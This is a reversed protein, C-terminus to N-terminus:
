NVVPQTVFCDLNDGGGDLDSAHACSESNDCSFESESHPHARSRPLLPWTKLAVCVQPSRNSPWFDHNRAAHTAGSWVSMTVFKWVFTTTETSMMLCKTVAAMKSVVHCVLVLLYAFRTPGLPSYNM